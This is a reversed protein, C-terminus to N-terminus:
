KKRTYAIEMMLFEKGQPDPGYMKMTMHDKDAIELVTRMKMTKGTAPDPGEMHETLVKGSKDWSGETTYLATSMSDVWVGTLKKKFTDYGTLGRGFFPQGLMEGKFQGVLFLGGVEMAAKYEGTSETAPAGPIHFKGKTEWEGAIQKLKAHEPGPKPGEQANAVAVFAVLSLVALTAPATKM